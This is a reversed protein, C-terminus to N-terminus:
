RVRGYVGGIVQQGDPSQLWALFHRLHGEPEDPSHHLYYLPVTLPYRQSGVENRTPPIDDIALLKVSATSSNGMLSYGIAQPNAAVATLLAEDSSAITANIDLRQEAMIRQNLLTRTGAGAERSVLQIPQDPGGLASWNTIRGNFLAQVEGRTLSSVPNDPHVVIVLGDVAVPNFWNSNGAPIHHLLLGDLQGARLDALLAAQNGAVFAVFVGDAEYAETALAALSTASSVVGLRVVATETPPTVPPPPLVAEGSCALLLLLCLLLPTLHRLLSTALHEAVRGSQWKAVGSPQGMLIIGM